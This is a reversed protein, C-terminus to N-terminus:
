EKPKLASSKKRTRKAPASKSKVPTKKVTSTKTTTADSKTKEVPLAAPIDEEQLETVQVYNAKVEVARAIDEPLETLTGTFKSGMMHLEKGKLTALLTVQIKGM